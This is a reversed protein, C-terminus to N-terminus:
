ARALSGRLVEQLVDTDQPVQKLHERLQAQIIEPPQRELMLNFPLSVDASLSTGQQRCQLMFSYVRNKVMIVVHIAM